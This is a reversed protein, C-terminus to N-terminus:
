SSHRSGSGQGLSTCERISDANCRFPVDGVRTTPRACDASALSQERQRDGWCADRAGPSSSVNTRESLRGNFEFRRSACSEMRMVSHGASDSSPRRGTCARCDQCATRSRWARERTLEDVLGTTLSSSRAIGNSSTEAVNRRRRQRCRGLRRGFECPELEVGRLHM